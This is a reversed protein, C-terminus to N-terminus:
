CRKRKYKRTRKDSTVLIGQENEVLVRTLKLQRGEEALTTRNCSGDLFGAEQCYREMAERYKEPAKALLQPMLEKYGHELAEAPTLGKVKFLDLDPILVGLITNILEQRQLEPNADLM